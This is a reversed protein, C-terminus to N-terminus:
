PFPCFESRCHDHPSRDLPDYLTRGTKIATWMNEATLRGDIRAYVRNYGTPLDM